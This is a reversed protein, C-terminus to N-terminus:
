PTTYNVCHSSIGTFRFNLSKIFFVNYGLVPAPLPSAVDVVSRSITLKVKIFNNIASVAKRIYMVFATYKIASLNVVETAITFTNIWVVKLRNRQHFIKEPAVSAMQSTIQTDFSVTFVPMFIGVLISPPALLVRAMALGAVTKIHTLTSCLLQWGRGSIRSITTALNNLKKNIVGM